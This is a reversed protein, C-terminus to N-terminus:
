KIKLGYEKIIIMKIHMKIKRLIIKLKKSFIILHFFLKNKNYWIYHFNLFFNLIFNIKIIIKM